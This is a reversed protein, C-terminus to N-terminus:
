SLSFSLSKCLYGSYYRIKLNKEHPLEIKLFEMKFFNSYLQKVINNTEETWCHSDAIFICM